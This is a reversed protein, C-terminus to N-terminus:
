DDLVTQDEVAESTGSSRGIEPDGAAPDLRDTRDGGRAPPGHDLGFAEGDGRTEDVDMLVGVDFEQDVGLRLAGNPLADCRHDAAIAATRGGRDGLRDEFLALLEEAILVAEVQGPPIEASEKATQFGGPDGNVVPREDSV